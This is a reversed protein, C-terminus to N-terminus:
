NLPLVMMATLVFERSRDQRSRNTYSKKGQITLYYSKRDLSGKAPFGILPQWLKITFFCPKATTFDICRKKKLIKGKNEASVNYHSNKWEKLSFHFLVLGQCKYRMFHFNQSFQLAVQDHSHFLVINNSCMKWCSQEFLSASQIQKTYEHTDQSQLNSFLFKKRKSNM